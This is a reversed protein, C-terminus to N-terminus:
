RDYSVKSNRVLISVIKWCAFCYCIFVEECRIERALFLNVAGMGLKTKRNEEEEVVLLLGALVRISLLVFLSRTVM